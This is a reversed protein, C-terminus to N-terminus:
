LELVPPSHRCVKTILRARGPITQFSEALGTRKVFGLVSRNSSKSSGRCHLQQAGPSPRTHVTSRGPVGIVAHTHLVHIPRSPRRNMALHPNQRETSGQLPRLPRAGRTQGILPEAQTRKEVV